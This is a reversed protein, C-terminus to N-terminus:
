ALRPARLVRSFIIRWRQRYTRMASFVKSSPAMSVSRASGLASAVGFRTGASGHAAVACVTRAPEPLKDLMEAIEQLSYAHANSAQVKRQRLTLGETQKKRSGGAKAEEMPNSGHFVNDAIAWSFAGSLFSKIRLHTQHSLKQPLSELFRQGDKPTFNRIAIKAIPNNKV